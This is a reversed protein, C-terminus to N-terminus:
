KVDPSTNLEVVLLLIVTSGTPGKKYPVNGNEPTGIYLKGNYLDTDSPIVLLRKEASFIDTFYIVMQHILVCSNYKLVTEELIKKVIIPLFM